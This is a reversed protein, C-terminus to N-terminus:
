DHSKATVHLNEAADAFARARVDAADAFARAPVDAADAFARARVRPQKRLPARARPATEAGARERLRPQKRVRAPLTRVPARACTPLPKRCPRGDAASLGARACTPLLRAPPTQRRRCNKGSAEEIKQSAYYLM